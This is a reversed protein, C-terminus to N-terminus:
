RGSAMELNAAVSGGLPDLIGRRTRGGRPLPLRAPGLVNMVRLGIRRRRLVDGPHAAGVRIVGAVM